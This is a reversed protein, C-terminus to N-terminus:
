AIPLYIIEESFYFNLCLSSTEWQCVCHCILQSLSYFVM